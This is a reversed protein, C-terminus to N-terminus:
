RKALKTHCRRPELETLVSNKTAAELQDLWAVLQQRDAQSLLPVLEHRVANRAITIDRNTVDERWDLHQDRAYAQLELKTLRLLPRVITQSSRLAVLGRSGSGRAANLWATELRDDAHHATMIGSAGTSVCVTKLFGYRARRAADESAEGLNLNTSEFPLGYDASKQKVLAYDAKSDPRMGHDAHAVTFQWPQPLAAVLDLLVMSDVGGSVALVYHAPHPLQLKQHIDM